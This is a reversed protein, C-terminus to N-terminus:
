RSAPRRRIEAAVRANAAAETASTPANVAIAAACALEFCVTCLRVGAVVEIGRDVVAGLADAPM